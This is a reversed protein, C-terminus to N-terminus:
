VSSSEVAYVDKRPFVWYKYIVFLIAAVVFISAGQVLEHRWGFYDVFIFLISLNISYGILHAFAYRTISRRIRGAHAFTLQRHGYFGIALGVIYILSMSQKPDLGLYVVFLYAVYLLCNIFIGVIGYRILYKM